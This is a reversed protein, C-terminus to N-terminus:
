RWRRGLRIDPFRRGRERCFWYLACLKGECHLSPWIYRRWWLIGRKEVPKAFKWPCLAPRRNM